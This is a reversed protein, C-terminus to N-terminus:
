PKDKVRTLSDEKLRLLEEATSNKVLKFTKGDPTTAEAGPFQAKDTVYCVEGTPYRAWLDFQNKRSHFNLASVERNLYFSLKSAWQYNNALIPIDGCDSQVRRAWDKWGHFEGLRRVPLDPFVLVLRALIVLAFSTLLLRRAWPRSWTEAGSLLLVAPVVVSITWNAEVKKSFTSILFFLLIGWFSFKLVREFSGIARRRLMLWCIVPGVLTGALVIQTGLYDLIRKLSFSSSPRELFHYRLTIFGHEKQWWLHPLFLVLSVLTIIWFDKRKLLNPLAVITFFILLIGHYKAYLLLPIVGGLLYAGDKNGDLYRRLSYFYLASMFLLPMDPLALLGSFSALPFAFFIFVARMRDDRPLMKLLIFLTAFQLLLFGLRVTFEHHPLFSFPAIVAAVFPPHDFYGWSLHRSFLWYYAEDHALGFSAAVALQLLVLAFLALKLSNTM